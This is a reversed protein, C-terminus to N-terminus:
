QSNIVKCHGIGRSISVIDKVSNTENYKEILNRLGITSIEIDESNVLLKLQSFKNKKFHLKRLHYIEVIERKIERKIEEM